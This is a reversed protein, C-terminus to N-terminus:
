LVQHMTAVLLHQSRQPFCVDGALAALSSFLELFCWPTRWTAMQRCYCVLELTGSSNAHKFSCAAEPTWLQYKISKRVTFGMRMAILAAIGPLPRQITQSEPCMNRGTWFVGMSGEVSPPATLLLFSASMQVAWVLENCLRCTGNVELLRGLSSYVVVCALYFVLCSSFSFAQSVLALSPSRVCVSFWFYRGSMDYGTFPGVSASKEAHVASIRM